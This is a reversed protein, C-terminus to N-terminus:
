NTGSRELYKKKYYYEKVQLLEKETTRVKRIIRWLKRLLNMYKKKFNDITTETAKRLM